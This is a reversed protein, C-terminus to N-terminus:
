NQQLDAITIRAGFVDPEVLVSVLGASEPVEFAVWGRVIQGATLEGSGFPPGVDADALAPTYVYGDADQVAFYLPNFPDSGGSLGVQTIDLALLRKGENVGFVGAPAPDMIENVTYSSGGVEITTGMAVPSDPPVPLPPPTQSVLDGMQGPLFDAITTMSGFVNSDVLVSVLRASEPLELALWGRVIQGVALEGSGFPPGVDADAIGSTYVYGDTDQVAFYLSNFPDGGGSTGVQTIDLAVLRKGDSVGFIGVPAPDIIENLTYSSGGVEVTTGMTVPSAPPVPIPPTTQSVLGGVQGPPFDAVSTRTGFVGDTASISIIRASEPLEFAVWGRVIQGATLEGSSFPPGVDAGVLSPTYLYGDTDQVAFNLLNYSDGNVSIGVQTIDLAVLRNGQSAGLIGAPAPDIIENLTYSSGGIEVTTGIDVPAPEPTPTATPAQTPTAVPTPTPTATPAQASKTTPAATPTATPAQASTATPAQTLQATPAQTPTATLTTTPASVTAPPTTTPTIEVLELVCTTSLAYDTGFVRVFYQGIANDNAILDDFEGTVGSLREWYCSDLTGTGAEGRYTGAVIDRGVLHTGPEINPLPEVPTPWENIPIIDCDMKFYKDTPLIEVYFQGIANDNAIVDSFEGSVGRLREWYCSHLVGTGAKGAHIGPQIEIGVEYTGPGLGPKPTPTITPAPTNTAPPTPTNAALTSADSPPPSEASKGSDDSCGAIVSMLLISWLVIRRVEENM